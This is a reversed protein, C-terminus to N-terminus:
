TAVVVKQGVAVGAGTVQVLGAQDDVIGTTVAILHHLGDAGVVELAYGGGALALLAGVPVALADPASQNTINVTVPAQDLSGEPSPNTLSVTVSVTATPNSSGSETTTTAVTGVTTITGTSTTGDPMNVTVADGARVLYSQDVDLAVNVLPTTSTVDLVDVGGQVPAGTLPHVATVRVSTPEFIVSGLLLQGTQALGLSAELRDIAAATAATFTNSPTLGSGDGVAVLAQDLEAVDPGSDMGHAFSRWAGAAGTLLVVPKADVSWLSQGPSIIQGVRPLSTYTSTSQYATASSQSTALTAQAAKLSAQDGALKAQDAALSAQDDGASADTLSTQGAAVDAEATTVASEAQALASPSTGVPEVISVPDAYGVTGDVPTTEVLNTRVVAVTTVTAAPGATSAHGSTLRDIVLAGGILVVVAVVAM